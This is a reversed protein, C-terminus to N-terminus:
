RHIGDSLSFTFAVGQKGKQLGNNEEEYTATKEEGM